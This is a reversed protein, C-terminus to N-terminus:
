LRLVTEAGCIVMQEIINVPTNNTINAPNYNDGTNCTMLLAFSLNSLNQGTLDTLTIYTTGSNSIKFGNQRGHTHVIFINSSQLYGIMTAVSASSYRVTSTISVKGNKETQM